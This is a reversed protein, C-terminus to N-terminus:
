SSSKLPKCPMLTARLGLLGSGDAAEGLGSRRDARGVGMGRSDVWIVEVRSVVGRPRRALNFERVGAGGGLAVVGFTEEEEM